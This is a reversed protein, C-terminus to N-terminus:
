RLLSAPTLAKTLLRDKLIELENTRVQYLATIAALDAPCCRAHARRGAVALVAAGRAVAFNSVAETDSFWSSNAGSVYNRFDLRRPLTAEKFAPTPYFSRDARCYEAAVHAPVNKQAGGVNKCWAAERQDWNRTDFNDVYDRLAAILSSFDFHHKEAETQKYIKSDGSAPKSETSPM